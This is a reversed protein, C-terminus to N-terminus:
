VGVRFQFDPVIGFQEVYNGILDNERERLNHAPLPKPECFFTCSLERGDWPERSIEFLDKSCDESRGIALVEDTAADIILFYGQNHPVAATAPTTLMRKPSWALGMWGPEGPKGTVTLPSASPGGAPNLPEGPAIKEGAVGDKEDSPSRYKRHFRGFNCLPSEHREQRYRYALYCEAAKLEAPPGGFPTSSFEYNYGKADKWAWLAPAVPWPDNWPMRLKVTNQRIGTFCDRLAGSTWGIYMMLDQGTPRIRYLGPSNMVADLAGSTTRFPIWPTWDLSCWKESFVDPAKEQETM